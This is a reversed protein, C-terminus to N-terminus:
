EARHVMKVQTFGINRALKVTDIFENITCNGDARVMIKYDPRDAYYEHLLTILQGENYESDELIYIGGPRVSIYKAGDDPLGSANLSPPNVDSSYEMIPMTIMFVILLLFTLDILPTMNIEDIANLQSRRKRRRAM